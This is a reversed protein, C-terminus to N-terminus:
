LEGMQALSSIRLNSIIPYSAAAGYKNAANNIIIQFSSSISYTPNFSDEPINIEQCNLIDIKFAKMFKEIQIQKMIDLRTQGRINLYAVNITSYYTIPKQLFQLIRPKLLIQLNPVIQLITPIQLYLLHAQRGLEYWAFLLCYQPGLPGVALM